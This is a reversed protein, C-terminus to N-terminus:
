PWPASATLGISSWPVGLAASGTPRWLGKQTGGFIQDALAAVSTVAPRPKAWRPLRGVAVSRSSVRDAVVKRAAEFKQGLSKVVEDLRAPSGPAPPLVVVQAAALALVRDAALRM